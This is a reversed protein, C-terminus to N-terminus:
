AYQPRLLVLVIRQVCRREYRWKECLDRLHALFPIVEGSIKSLSTVLLPLLISKAKHRSLQNNASTSTTKTSMSTTSDLLTKTGKDFIAADGVALEEYCRSM